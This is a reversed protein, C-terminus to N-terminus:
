HSNLNGILIFIRVLWKVMFILWIMNLLFLWIGRVLRSDARRRELSILLELSRGRLLIKELFLNGLAKFVIRINRLLWWLRGMLRTNKLVLVLWLENCEIKLKIMIKAIAILLFIRSLLVIWCFKLSFILRLPIWEMLYFSM